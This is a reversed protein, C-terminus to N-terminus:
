GYAAEHDEGARKIKGADGSHSVYVWSCVACRVEWKGTAPSKVSRTKHRVKKQKGHSHKM